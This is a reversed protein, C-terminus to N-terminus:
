ARKRSLERLKGTGSLVFGCSLVGFISQPYDTSVAKNSFINESIEEEYIQVCFDKENFLNEEAKKLIIVQGMFGEKM